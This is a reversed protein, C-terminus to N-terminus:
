LIFMGVLGVVGGSDWGWGYWRYDFIEMEVMEVMEDGDSLGDKMGNVGEVVCLRSVLSLWRGFCKRLCFKRMLLLMM